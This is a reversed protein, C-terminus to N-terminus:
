DLPVFTGNRRGRWRTFMQVAEELLTEANGADAKAEEYHDMITAIIMNLMLLVVVIIFLWLWIGAETRGIASLEEWEIDGLMIRFCSIMARTGTTFSSVERGFLVIGCIGM